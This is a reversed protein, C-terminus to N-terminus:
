LKTEDKDTSVASDPGGDLQHSNEVSGDGERGSEHLLSPNFNVHQTTPSARLAGNSSGYLPSRAREEKTPPAETATPQVSDGEAPRPGLQKLSYRQVIGVGFCDGLVNVTTRFRDRLPLSLPPSM